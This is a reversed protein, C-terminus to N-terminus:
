KSEKIAQITLIGNATFFASAFATLYLSHTERWLSYIGVFFFFLVLEPLCKSLRGKALDLAKRPKLWDGIM